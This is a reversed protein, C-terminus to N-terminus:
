PNRTVSALHSLVSASTQPSPLKAGQWKRRPRGWFGGCHAFGPAAHHTTVPAHRIPSTLFGPRGPPTTSTISIGLEM